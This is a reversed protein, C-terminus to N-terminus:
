IKVLMPIFRLVKKAIPVQSELDLFTDNYLTQDNLRDRRQIRVSIYIPVVIGSGLGLDWTWLNRTKVEEM